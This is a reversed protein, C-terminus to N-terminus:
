VLHIWSLFYGFNSKPDFLIFFSAKFYRMYIELEIRFFVFYNWSDFLTGLFLHFLIYLFLAMLEFVCPILLEYQIIIFNDNTDLDAQFLVFSIDSTKLKKYCLLLISWFQLFIYWIM